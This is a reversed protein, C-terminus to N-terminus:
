AMLLLINHATGEMWHGGYGGGGGLGRLDTKVTLM